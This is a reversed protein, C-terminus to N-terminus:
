LNTGDSDPETSDFITNLQYLQEAAEYNNSSDFAGEFKARLEKLANKPSLAKFTEKV